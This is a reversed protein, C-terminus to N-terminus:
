PALLGAKALAGRFFERDAARAYPLSEVFAAADYDPFAVRLADTNRRVAANNGTEASAAIAYLLDDQRPRGIQELVDLADESRGLYFLARALHTWYRQPHYPNLTMSKRVWQEAEQHRGALCLIEGMSCVSRDDNPNLFLAREQHKLARPLNGRTLHVQALIRHCESENEDLELGREAAAQSRDVLKAHDDLGWVMAQGLGCALWAHAVAYDPDHDIAQTFMEICTACDDATFRHHHDKGRLLYDYAELRQATAKRARELQTAEVRGALTSVVTATIEDQVRFVDTMGLEYRNAWLTLGAPGDLLQVNIRVRDASRRVSGRVLFQAHLSEAIERDTAASNKYVFTSGRAIVQLSHFRSLATIIDETIGDVFYDDAEGSRNDFPLVAVRPSDSEASPGPATETQQPTESEPGPDRIEALLKATEPSPDVGLERRLADACVAYQRLADYRRGVRTFAIMLDRHAPECAPDVALRRNLALIARDYEEKSILIHVYRDMADCATNRFRDRMLRLWDEFASERSSTGELLEGTYIDLCNKLSKEDVEQALRLFEIVDVSCRNPDLRLLEGEAEIVPGCIGRIRSLAQRLNHRAREESREGWFLHALSDRTAHKEVALYTLLGQAKRVNLPIASGDSWRMNFPGLARV